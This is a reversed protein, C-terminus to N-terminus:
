GPIRSAPPSSLRKLKVKVRNWYSETHVGTVPDVSHNVTHHATVPPLAAVQNSTRWQDSHVVSGPAVHRQMIPLLTAADRKQVLEMYGLPLLTHPILCGHMRDSVEDMTISHLFIVKDM